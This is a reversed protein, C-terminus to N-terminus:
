GTSLCVGDHLAMQPYIFSLRFTKLIACGCIDVLPHNEEQLRPHAVEYSQPIGNM